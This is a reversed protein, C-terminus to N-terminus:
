TLDKTRSLEFAYATYSGNGRNYVEYFTGTPTLYYSMVTYRYQDADTIIYVIEGIDFEVEITLRKPFESM